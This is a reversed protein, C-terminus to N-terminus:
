TRLALMQKCFCGRLYCEQQQHPMKRRRVRSISDPVSVPSSHRHPVLHHSFRPFDQKITFKVEESPIRTWWSRILQPSKVVPGTLDRSGIIRNIGSVFQKPWQSITAISPPLRTSRERDDQMPTIISCLEVIIAQSQISLRLRTLSVRRHAWQHRAPLIDRSTKDFAEFCEWLRGFTLQDQLTKNLSLRPLM